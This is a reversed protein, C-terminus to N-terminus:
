HTISRQPIGQRGSGKMRSACRLRFRAAETCAIGRCGRDRCPLGLVGPLLLRRLLQGHHKVWGLMIPGRNRRSQGGLQHVCDCRGRGHRDPFYIATGLVDASLCQDRGFGDGDRAAVLCLQWIVSDLSASPASSSAMAVNRRRDASRDSFHGWVVMGITGVVDPVASVFGTQLNTLGWGKIMQPLFYVVGYTATGIGFYVLSLALRASRDVSAVPQARSHMRWRNGSGSALVRWGSNATERAVTGAIAPGDYVGTRRLRDIRGSYRGDPVDM